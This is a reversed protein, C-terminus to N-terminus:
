DNTAGVDATAADPKDAAATEVDGEPKGGGAILDADSEGEPAASDDSRANGPNDALDGEQRAEHPTPDKPGTMIQVGKAAIL